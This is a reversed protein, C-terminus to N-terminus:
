YFQLNKQTKGNLLSLMEFAENLDNPKGLIHGDIAVLTDAALILSDPETVAVAEAKLQANFLTIEGVTLHSPMQEEVTAAKIRVNYGYECLLDRRRPSASALLISSTIM